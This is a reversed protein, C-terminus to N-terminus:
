PRQHCVLEPAEIGDDEVRRASAGLGLGARERRRPNRQHDRDGAIGRGKGAISVGQDLAPIPERTTGTSWNTQDGCTSSTAQNARRDM